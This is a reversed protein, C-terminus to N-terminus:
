KGFGRRIMDNTIEDVEALMTRILWEQYCLVLLPEGRAEADDRLRKIQRVQKSESM